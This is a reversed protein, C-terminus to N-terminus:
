AAEARRRTRDQRGRAAIYARVLGTESPLWRRLSTCIASVTVGLEDAVHEPAAGEAHRAVVTELRARVQPSPGVRLKVAPSTHRWLDQLVEGAFVVDGVSRLSRDKQLLDVALAHCQTIVPCMACTAIREPVPQRDWDPRTACAAQTMDVTVPSTM